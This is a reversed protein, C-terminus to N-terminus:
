PQLVGETEGEVAIIVQEVTEFQTLTRSIQDRIATVRASGGGYSRMEKSFNVTATGEEITLDLLEVRVGWDPGRGPYTLVEEPTPLATRFGALNRPPPGWLLEEVATREIQEEVLVQRQETELNEGLLWTLDIRQSDPHDAGVVTISRQALVEGASNEIILVAQPGDPRPPQSETQWDISDILLSEGRPGELTTFQDSLETGDEWRLIVTLEDGPQGVYAQIHVPLTVIEGDQPTELAGPDQPTPTPVLNVPLAEDPVFVVRDGAGHYRYTEQNHKLLIIYGPTVVQAYMQGEEPVGLSADPFAVPTVEQVKIKEVGIGLREALLSTALSALAEQEPSAKSPPPTPEGPMEASEEPVLIVRQDAAHYQYNQQNAKLVIVYGPTVVQAYVQGEEPVGLSADPFETPKVSVTEIDEVPIELREALDNRAMEVLADAGTTPPCAALSADMDRQTAPQSTEATDGFQLPIMEVMPGGPRRVVLSLGYVGSDLDEPFRVALTDSFGAGTSLDIRRNALTALVTPSDGALLNLCLRGEWTNETNNQINIEFEAEEGPQYGNTYGSWEVVAGDESESRASFPERPPETPAAGPGSLASCGAAALSLIVILGAFLSLTQLRNRKRTRRQNVNM